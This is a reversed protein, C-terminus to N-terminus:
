RFLHFAVIASLMAALIVAGVRNIKPNSSLIIPIPGLFIVAGGKRNVRRTTGTEGSGYPNDTETNPGRMRIDPMTGAALGFFLIAVGAFLLLAGAAGMGGSVSIVPFVVFLFVEVDGSLAAGLLLIFGVAALSIGTGM